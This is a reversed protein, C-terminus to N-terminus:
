LAKYYQVIPLPTYGAKDYARRAPAHGPDGGTGIMATKMGADRMWDTALNTLSTGLGHNQASPDVAIMWLEGISREADLSVAMFAVVTDGTAAVWVRMAEDALADEVARQQYAKWDTGHLLTDIEDGLAERISAFVPEWARLALAVVAECDTPRYERIVPDM